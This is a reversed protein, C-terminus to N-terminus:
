KPPLEVVGVPVAGQARAARIEEGTPASPTALNGVASSFIAVKRGEATDPVVISFFQQQPIFDDRRLEGSIPDFTESHVALPDAMVKRYLVVGAQSQLEIWFGAHAEGADTKPEPDSDPLVTRIPLSQHLYFIGERYEIVLRLASAPARPEQAAAGLSLLAFILGPLLRM